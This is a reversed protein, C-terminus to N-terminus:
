ISIIYPYCHNLFNDNNINLLKKFFSNHGIIAINNEKRNKLWIKLNSIRDNLEEESEKQNKWNYEDFVIEDFNVNNYLKKLIKINKRYNCYHIGLPHELLYDLAIIPINKNNIFINKCTELTRILPSVIILEINKIEDWSNSLNLSQITGLHTLPTDRNKIYADEGIIPYLINHLSEGHRICYLKKKDM